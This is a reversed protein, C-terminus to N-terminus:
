IKFILTAIAGNQNERNKIFICGKHTQIINQCVSLGLGVGGKARRDTFFPDFVKSANEESIGIGTDEITIMAVKQKPLFNKRYLLPIEDLTDSLEICRTALIIEMQISELNSINKEEQTQSDNIAYVANIILNILVQEIRNKDLLLKPMDKTLIKIIEIKSKNLEHSALLLSKEIIPNIDQLEVKLETLSSFDLLDTIILNAKHSAERINKLINKYNKDEFKFNKSLFTVGYLITTLPNRVEHAVGSALGGIVKLKESQILQAKIEKLKENTELLDIELKKRQIAYHLTKNLTYSSYKGKVLFDQAGERITELGLEDDYAGTNIVIAMKPYKTNLVELSNTGKSDPLNLDLLVVDFKYEELLKEAGKLSDTTKLTSKEHMIKKLMSHLIKRDIHNDEVGLVNIIRNNLKQEKTNEM